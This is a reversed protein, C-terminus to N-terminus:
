GKPMKLKDMDVGSAKLDKEAQALVLTKAYVGITQGKLNSALKIIMQEQPTVASKITKMKTVEDKKTAV